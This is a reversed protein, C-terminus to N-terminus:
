PHLVQIKDDLYDTKGKVSDIEKLIHEIAEQQQEHYVLDRASTAAHASGLRLHEEYLGNFNDALDDYAEQLEIMQMDLLAISEEQQVTIEEVREIEGGIGMLIAFTFVISTVPDM